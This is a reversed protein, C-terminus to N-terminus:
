DSICTILWTCLKDICEIESDVQVHIVCYAPSIVSIFNTEALSYHGMEWQSPRLAVFVIHEETSIHSLLNANVSFNRLFSQRRAISVAVQFNETSLNAQVSCPVPKIGLSEMKSYACRTVRMERPIVDRTVVDRELYLCLLVDRPLVISGERVYNMSRAEFRVKFRAVLQCCKRWWKELLAQFLRSKFIRIVREIALRLQKDQPKTLKSHYDELLELARHAEGQKRVPMRYHEEEVSAFIKSRRDLFKAESSHTEVIAISVGVQRSTFIGSVRKEHNRTVSNCQQSSIVRAMASPASPRATLFLMVSARHCSTDVLILFSSTLFWRVNALGHLFQRLLELCGDDAVVFPELTTVNYQRPSQPATHKVCRTLVASSTRPRVTLMVQKDMLTQLVGGSVFVAPRERPFAIAATCRAAFGSDESDDEVDLGLLVTGSSVCCSLMFSSRSLKLCCHCRSSLGLSCAWSSASAM